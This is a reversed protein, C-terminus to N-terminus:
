DSTSVDRRFTAVVPWRPQGPTEVVQRLRADAHVFSLGCVIALHVQGPSVECMLVDGRRRVDRVRRFWISMADTLEAIHRGRLRYNCRVREAPIRFAQM